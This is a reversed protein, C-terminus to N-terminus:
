CTGSVEDQDVRFDGAKQVVVSEHLFRYPPGTVSEGQNNVLTTQSIDVCSEIAWTPHGDPGNGQAQASRVEVISNGSGTYQKLNYETLNKRFFDLASGSAVGDLDQISTGPNNTLRDVVVWLDVVAQKAAALDQEAPSLTAPTPAPTSTTATVSATPAPTSTCGAVAAALAAALLPGGVHKTISM